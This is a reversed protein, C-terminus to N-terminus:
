PLEGDGGRRGVAAALHRNRQVGRRPSQRVRGRHLHQRARRDGSGPASRHVHQCAPEVADQEPQRSPQSGLQRVCQGAPQRVSRADRDAAAPAQWRALVEARHRRRQRRDLRQGPLRRLLRSHRQAACEPRGVREGRQRRHRIRHRTGRPGFRSNRALQGPKRADRHVRPGAFRHLNGRSRRDVMAQAQRDVYQARAPNRLRRREAVADEAVVWRSRLEPGQPSEKYRSAHRFRVPGLCRGRGTRRSRRLYLTKREHHDGRQM